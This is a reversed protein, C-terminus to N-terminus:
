HYIHLNTNLEKKVSADATYSLWTYHQQEQFSKRGINFFTVDIITSGKLIM